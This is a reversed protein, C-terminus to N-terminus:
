ASLKWQYLLSETNCSSTCICIEFSLPDFIDPHLFLSSVITSVETEKQPHCYPPIEDPLEDWLMPEDSVCIYDCQTVSKSDVFLSHLWLYVMM